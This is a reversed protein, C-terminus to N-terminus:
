VDASVSVPVSLILDGVWLSWTLGFLLALSPPRLPFSLGPQFLAFPTHPFLMHITTIEDSEACINTWFVEAFLNHPLELDLASQSGEPFTQIIMAIGPRLSLQDGSRSAKGDGSGILNRRVNCADDRM